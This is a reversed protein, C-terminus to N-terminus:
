FVKASVVMFGDEDGHVFCCGWFIYCNDGIFILFFVVFLFLLLCLSLCFMYLAFFAFVDLLLDM